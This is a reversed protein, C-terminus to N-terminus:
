NYGTIAAPIPKTSLVAVASPSTSVVSARCNNGNVTASVNRTKHKKTDVQTAMSPPIDITHSENGFILRLRKTQPPNELCIDKCINSFKSSNSITSNDNSHLHNNKNNNCHLKDLQHHHDHNNKLHESNTVSGNTYEQEILHNLSKERHHNRHRHSKSKTKHRKKRKKCKNPSTAITATSTYEDDDSNDLLGEVRFVEYEPKYNASLYGNSYGGDSLSTGSEILDDLMPSRKMRLTLKLRREPTKLVAREPQLVIQDKTNNARSITDNTNSNYGCMNSPAKNEWSSTSESESNSKSAKRKRSIGNIAVPKAYANSLGNQTPPPLPLLKLDEDDEANDIANIDLKHPIGKRSRKTPPKGNLDNLCNKHEQNNTGSNNSNNVNNNNNNNKHADAGFVSASLDDFKASLNKRCNEYKKNMSQGNKLKTLEVQPIATLQNFENKHSSNLNKSKIESDTLQTQNRYLIRNQYSSSACEPKENSNLKNHAIDDCNDAEQIGIASDGSHNSGEDLTLSSITSSNTDPLSMSNRRSNSMTMPRTAAVDGDSVNKAAERRKFRRERLTMTPSSKKSTNNVAMSPVTITTIIAVGNESTNSVIRRSRRTATLTRNKGIGSISSSSSLSTSLSSQNSNKKSNFNQKNSTSTPSSAKKGSLSVATAATMDSQQSFKNFVNPHQQAMIIEADYKTIGKQRLEKLTLPTMVKSDSRNSSSIAASGGSLHSTKAANKNKNKIRNIRNDTERLRYSGATTGTKAIGLSTTTTSSTQSLGSASGEEQVNLDVDMEKQKSAFAGTQRRECTECECYCNSDGFFDEGYFCTIEEGEEIDRLVKVCATDRGTPVFKCNPRCDHNIYAAPGLWLQACNKRCSYMVSFDNKGPHLLAREEEETLEAICGVLCEIKDNKDWRRTASIKAGKQDELSYRYCAEIM